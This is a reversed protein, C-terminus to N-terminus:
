EGFGIMRIRGPTHDGAIRTKNRRRAPGIQEAFSPRFFERFFLKVRQAIKIQLQRIVDHDIGIVTSARRAARIDARSHTARDPVLSLEILKELEIFDGLEGVKRKAGDRRHRPIIRQHFPPEGIREM